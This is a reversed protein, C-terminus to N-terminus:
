KMSIVSIFLLLFVVFINHLFNHSSAENCPMSGASSECICVETIRNNQKEMFCGSTPASGNEINVKSCM